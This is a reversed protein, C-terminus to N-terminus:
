LSWRCGSITIREIIIEVTEHGKSLVAQYLLLKYFIFQKVGVM